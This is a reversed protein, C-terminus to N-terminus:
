QKYLNMELESRDVIRDSNTMKPRLILNMKGLDVSIFDDKGSIRNSRSKQSQKGACVLEHRPWNARQCEASCYYVTLCGLCHKMKPRKGGTAGREPTMEPKPEEKSCEECRKM